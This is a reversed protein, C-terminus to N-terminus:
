LMVLSVTLFTLIFTDFGLMGDHKHGSHSLPDSRRPAPGLEIYQILRESLRIEHSTGIIVVAKSSPRARPTTSRHVPPLPPITELRQMDSCLGLAQAPATNRLSTTM